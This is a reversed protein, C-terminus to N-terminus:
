LKFHLKLQAASFQVLLVEKSFYFHHHIVYNHIIWQRIM